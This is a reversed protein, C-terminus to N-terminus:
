FRFEKKYQVYLFAQAMHEDVEQATCLDEMSISPQMVSIINVHEYLRSFFDSVRNDSSPIHVNDFDYDSLQLAWNALKKSRSTKM